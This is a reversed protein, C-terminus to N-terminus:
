RAKSSAVPCIGNESIDGVCIKRSFNFPLMGFDNSHVTTLCFDVSGDLETDSNFVGSLSCELGRLIREIDVGCPIDRRNSLESCCNM